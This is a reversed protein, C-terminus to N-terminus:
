KEEKKETQESTDVKKMLSVNLELVWMLAHIQSEIEIIESIANEDLNMDNLTNVLYNKMDQVEQETRM